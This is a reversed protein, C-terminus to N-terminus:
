VVSDDVSGKQEGKLTQIMVYIANKMNYNSYVIKIGYEFCGQHRVKRVIIAKLPIKKQQLYIDIFFEKNMCLDVETRIMMNGLGLNGVVAKFHNSSGELRVDAEYQVHFRNYLRRNKNSYTIYAKLQILNKEHDSDMVQCRSVYVHNYSEYGMILADGKLCCPKVGSTLQVTLVDYNVEMIIGQSLEDRSSNCLSVVEGVKLKM